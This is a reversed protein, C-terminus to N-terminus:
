RKEVFCMTYLISCSHTRFAPCVNANKGKPERAEFDTSKKSLNETIHRFYPRHNFFFFLNHPIQLLNNLMFYM